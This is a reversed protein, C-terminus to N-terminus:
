SRWCGGSVRGSIAGLLLRRRNRHPVTMRRLQIRLFEAGVSDDRFRDGLSLVARASSARAKMRRRERLNKKPLTAAETSVNRLATMGPKLKGIKRDCAGTRKAVTTTWM